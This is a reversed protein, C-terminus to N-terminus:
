HHTFTFSHSLPEVHENPEISKSEISKKSQLPELFHLSHSSHSASHIKSHSASHIREHEHKDLPTPETPEIFKSETPEISEIPKNSENLHIPKNSENSKSEIPKNSENLEIPEFEISEIPKNSEIPESPKQQVNENGKIEKIETKEEKEPEKEMEVKSFEIEEVTREEEEKQKEEKSDFEIRQNPKEDVRPSKPEGNGPNGDLSVGLQGIPDGSTAELMSNVPEVSIVLPEKHELHELHELHTTQEISETKINQENVDIKHEKHEMQITKILEKRPPTTGLEMKLEKPKEKQDVCGVNWEAPKGMPKELPKELPKEMPKELPKEMPKELPKEMRVNEKIEVNGGEKRMGPTEKKRTESSSVGKLKDDWQVTIERRQISANGATKKSESKEEGNGAIKQKAVKRLSNSPRGRLSVGAGKAKIEATKGESM